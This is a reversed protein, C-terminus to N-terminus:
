LGKEKQLDKCRQKYHKAIAIYELDNYRKEQVGKIKLSQATGAGWKYDLNKSYTEQVTIDQMRFRNCGKCQSNCNREDFCTNNKEAPIFHGGDTNKNWITRKGCSICTCVGQKDADRLRVFKQFWQKAKDRESKRSKLKQSSSRKSKPKKKTGYKRRFEYATMKSKTESTPKPTPNFM